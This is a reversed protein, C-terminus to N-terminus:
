AILWLSSVSASKSNVTALFEEVEECWRRIAKREDSEFWLRIEELVTDIREPLRQSDHAKPQYTMSAGGQRKALYDAWKKTM